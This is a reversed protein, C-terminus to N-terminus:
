APLTDKPLPDAMIERIAAAREALQFANWTKLDSLVLMAPSCGYNLEPGPRPKFPIIDGM